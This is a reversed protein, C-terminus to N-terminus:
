AKSTFTKYFAPGLYEKIRSSAPVILTMREPVRFVGNDCNEFDKNYTGPPLCLDKKNGSCVLVVFFTTYTSQTTGNSYIISKKMEKMLNDPTADFSNGSKCQQEMVIKSEIKLISNASSPQREFFLADGVPVLDM